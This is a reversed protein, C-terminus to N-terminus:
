DVDLVLRTDNLGVAVILSTYTFHQMLDYSGDIFYFANTKM